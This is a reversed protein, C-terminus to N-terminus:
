KTTQQCFYGAVLIYLVFKVEFLDIAVKKWPHGPAIHSQVSDKPQSNEFEKCMQCIHIIDKIDNRLRPWFICERHQYYPNKLGVTFLGLIM